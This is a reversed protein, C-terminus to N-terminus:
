REDGIRTSGPLKDIPQLAHSICAASKGLIVPPVSCRSMHWFLLTGFPRQETAASSGWRLPPAKFHRASCFFFSAIEAIGAAAIAAGDADVSPQGHGLWLEVALSAPAPSRQLLLLQHLHLGTIINQHDYM